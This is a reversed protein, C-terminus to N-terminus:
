EQKPIICGNARASNFISEKLMTHFKKKESVMDNWFIFSWREGSNEKSFALCNGTSFGYFVFCDSRLTYANIKSKIQLEKLIEILWM